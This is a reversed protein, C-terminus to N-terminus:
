LLRQQPATKEASPLQRKIKQYATWRGMLAFMKLETEIKTVRVPQGAVAVERCEDAAATFPASWEGKPSKIRWAGMVEVPIDNIRFQGFSSQFKESARYKVPTVLFDKLLINCALATEKDALIDIDVVNMALGQLVLSATGRLAYQRRALVEALFLITKEL